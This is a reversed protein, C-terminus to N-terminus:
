PSHLGAKVLHGALAAAVVRHGAVSLHGGIKRSRYVPRAPTRRDAECFLGDLRICALGLARARRECMDELSEYRSAGKVVDHYPIVLWVPVAGDARVGDNFRKMMRSLVQWETDRESIRRSRIKKLTKGLAMLCYPCYWAVGIRRRGSQYDELLQEPAVLQTNALRLGQGDPVFVPKAYGIFSQTNRDYDGVYFGLVVVDAEYPRGYHEYTLIQQDTGYAQVAMNVVEWGPLHEAELFHAFTEDNKVGHGFTFSDGLLLLRKRGARRGVEYERTARVGTSNTVLDDTRIGPKMRWGLHPDFVHNSAPDVAVGTALHAQAWKWEYTLSKDLVPPFDDKIWYIVRVTMEAALLLVILIVTHLLKRRRTVIRSTRALVVTFEGTFLPITTDAPVM